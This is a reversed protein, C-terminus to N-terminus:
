LREVKMGPLPRAAWYLLRDSWTQGFNVRSLNSVTCSDLTLNKPNLTLAPDMYNYSEKMSDLFFASFVM